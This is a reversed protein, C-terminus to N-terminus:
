AALKDTAEIDEGTLEGATYAFPHRYPDLARRGDVEVEFGEKSLADYVKVTVRNTRENWYLSVDIGDSARHALEKEPETTRLTMGNRRAQSRHAERNPREIVFAEPRLPSGQPSSM